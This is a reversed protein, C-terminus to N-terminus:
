GQYVLRSKSRWTLNEPSGEAQSFCVSGLERALGELAPDATMLINPVGRLALHLGIMTIDLGHAEDIIAVIM